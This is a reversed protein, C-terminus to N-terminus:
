EEEAQKIKAQDEAASRRRLEESQALVTRARDMKGLDRYAQYLLYHLDGYRDLVLAKELEPVALTAQGTRLYAKGLAARAELLAPDYRLSRVLYPIGAQPQRQEVYWDGMLYIARADSPNLALSTELERKADENAHTGLYLEGLSRHLEFNDPRLRIATKYEEIADQNAQKLQFAEARLEHTRWSDPFNATLQAFCNDSLAMFVRTLWYAAEANGPEGAIARAFANSASEFQGLAFLSKGL